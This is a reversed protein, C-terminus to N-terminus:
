EVTKLLLLFFQQLNMNAERGLSFRRSLTRSQFSFISRPLAVTKEKSNVGISFPYLILICSYSVKFIYDSVKFGNDCTSEEVTIHQVLEQTM